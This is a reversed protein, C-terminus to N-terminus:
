SVKCFVASSGIGRNLCDSVSWERTRGRLPTISFQKPLFPPEPRTTQHHIDRVIHSPTAFIQFAVPYLRDKGRQCRNSLSDISPPSAGGKRVARFSGWSGQGAGKANNQRTGLCGLYLKDRTSFATPRPAQLEQKFQTSLEETREFLIAGMTTVML